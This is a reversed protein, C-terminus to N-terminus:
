ELEVFKIVQPAMVEVNIVLMLLIICSVYCNICGCESNKVSNMLGEVYNCKISVKSKIVMFILDSIFYRLRNTDHPSEM